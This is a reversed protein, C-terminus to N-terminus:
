MGYLQILGKKNTYYDIASGYLWDQPELVYGARVPNEHLYDMRQDFMFNNDLLIPHNEVQWFQYKHNAKNKSGYDELLPLIWDKRSEKENKIIADIVKLATFSKINKMVLGPNHGAGFSAIIHFHNPMIVWAKLQLGQHQQCHKFSDVIIDKYLNRTFIDIYGVVTSTIFYTGEKDSFKYKSSM